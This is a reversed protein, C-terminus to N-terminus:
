RFITACSAFGVIFWKEKRTFVSHPKDIAVHHGMSGVAVETNSSPALSLSQEVTVDAVGASQKEDAGGEL